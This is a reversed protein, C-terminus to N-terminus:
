GTTTTYNIIINLNFKDLIILSQEYNIRDIEKCIQVPHTEWIGFSTQGTLVNAIDSAIFKFCKSVIILLGTERLEM